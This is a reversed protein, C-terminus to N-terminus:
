GGPRAFGAPRARSLFWRISRQVIQAPLEHGGEFEVYTVDYGAGRLQPVIRRSTQDIPLVKDRRGHSVFVDPDGHREVDVVFGPSAGILFPFLDGNALGLTLAYSAGDSFGALAIASPDVAIRDFTAALAADILEVDPGFRGEVIIDWSPGRSLPLLLAVGLAGAEGFRGLGRGDGGGGAGHLTVMLPVPRGGRAEPPVFLKADRDATVGLSHLGPEITTGSAGDRPRSLLRAPDDADDIQPSGSRSADRQRPARGADPAGDRGCAATLAVTAGAGIAMRLLRRRGFPGGDPVDARNAAVAASPHRGRPESPM